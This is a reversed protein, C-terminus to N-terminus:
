KGKDIREFTGKNKNREHGEKVWTRRQNISWDGRVFSSAKWDINWPITHTFSQEVKSGRKMRSTGSM